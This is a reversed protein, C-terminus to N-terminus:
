PQSIQKQIEKKGNSRYIRSLIQFVTRLFLPRARQRMIPLFLVATEHPYNQLDKKPNGLRLSLAFDM